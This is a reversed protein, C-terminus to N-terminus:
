QIMEEFLINEAAKLVANFGDDYVVNCGNTIAVMGFKEKPNFFMMSYLGYASGTHGKMVKGPILKDTTLIALGYGDEGDSVITQM